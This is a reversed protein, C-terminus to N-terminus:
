YTVCDYDASAANKLYELGSGSFVAAICWIVLTAKAAFSLTIYYLEYYPFAANVTATDSRFSHAVHAASVLGFSCYFLFVVVILPELWDPPEGVDNVLHKCKDYEDDAQDLTAYWSTFIPYWTAVLLVWGALLPVLKDASSGGRAVAAEANFGQQMLAFTALFLVILLDRNRVGALVALIACMVSASAGYEIWRLPNKGGKFVYDSYGFLDLAYSAHAAATLASFVWVMTFLDLTSETTKAGVVPRCTCRLFGGPDLDTKVLDVRTKTPKRAARNVVLAVVLLLHLVM